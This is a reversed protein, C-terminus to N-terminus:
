AFPVIYVIASANSCLFLGAPDKYFQNMMIATMMMKNISRLIPRVSLLMQVAYFAIPYLQFLGFCQLEVSDVVHLYSECTLNNFDDFYIMDLVLAKYSFNCFFLIHMLIYFNYDSILVESIKLLKNRM